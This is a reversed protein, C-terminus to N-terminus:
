AHAEGAMTPKRLILPRQLLVAVPSRRLVKESVSGEIFREMGTRGHTTMAILDVGLNKGHILIEDEAKGVCTVPWAYFGEEELSDALEQMMREPTSASSPSLGPAWQPAADHLPPLVRLLIIEARVDPALFRLSELLDSPPQLGDVPVLVRQIPRVPRPTDPRTLLVPLQAKRVVESAVSGWFRRRLGRRAHTTMAILDINKELATRLIGDAPQGTRVIDIGARGPFFTRRIKELYETGSATSETGVLTLLHVKGKPHLVRLVEPLVTESEASGDLPILIARAM